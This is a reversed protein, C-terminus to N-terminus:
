KSEASKSKSTSAVGLALGPVSNPSPHAFCLMRRLDDNKFSPLSRSWKELQHAQAFMLRKTENPIKVSTSCGM